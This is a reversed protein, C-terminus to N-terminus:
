HHTGYCTKVPDPAKHHVLVGFIVKVRHGARQGKVGPRVDAAAVPLIHDNGAAPLLVFLPQINILADAPIVPRKRHIRQLRTLRRRDAEARHVIGAAHKYVTHLDATVLGPVRRERQIAGRSDPLPFVLDSDAHVVPVSNGHPRVHHAVKVVAAEVATHFQDAGPHPVDFIHAPIGRPLVAHPRERDATLDAAADRHQLKGAGPFFCFDKGIFVAFERPRKGDAPCFGPTRLIRHQVPDNKGGFVSVRPFIGASELGDTHFVTFNEEVARRIPKAAHAVQAVVGIGTHGHGPLVNEPIQLEHLAAAYIGDAAM